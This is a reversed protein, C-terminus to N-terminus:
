CMARNLELMSNMGNTTFSKCVKVNSVLMLQPTVTTYELGMTPASCSIRKVEVAILTTLYFPTLFMEMSVRLYQYPIQLNEYAYIYPM